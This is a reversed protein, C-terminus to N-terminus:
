NKKTRIADKLSSCVEMGILKLQVEGIFGRNYDNISRHFHTILSNVTSDEVLIAEGYYIEEFARIESASIKKNDSVSILSAISKSVSTYVNLKKEWLKNSFDISDNMRAKYYELEINKRQGTNFQVVGIIIAVLPLIASTIQAIIEWVSKKPNSFPTKSPRM